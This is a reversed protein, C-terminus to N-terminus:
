RHRRHKVTGEPMHRYVATESRGLYRSIRRAKWGRAALEAITALEDDTFFAKPTAMEVRMPPPCPHRTPPDGDDWLDGPATGMVLQHCTACEVTWDDGRDCMPEVPPEVDAAASEQTPREQPRVRASNVRVSQPTSEGALDAGTRLQSPSLLQWESARATARNVNHGRAARHLILLSRAWALARDVTDTSVGADDALMERPVWGCGTGANLRASLMWLVALYAPPPKPKLDRVLWSWEPMSVRDHGRSCESCTGM